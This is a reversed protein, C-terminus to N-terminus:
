MDGSYKMVDGSSVNDSLNTGHFYDFEDFCGASKQFYYFWEACLFFDKWLFILM